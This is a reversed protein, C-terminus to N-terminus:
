RVDDDRKKIDFTPVPPLFWPNEDYNSPDM